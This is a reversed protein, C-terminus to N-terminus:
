AREMIEKYPYKELLRDFEEIPMPKAYLYGQVVDCGISGLFDAQAKEEVGEAIVPMALKDAMGVVMQLINASRSADEAQGM